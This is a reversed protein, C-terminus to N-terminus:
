QMMFWTWVRSPSSSSAWETTHETTDVSAFLDLCEQKKFTAIHAQYEEKALSRIKWALERSVRELERKDAIIWHSCTESIIKNVEKKIDM